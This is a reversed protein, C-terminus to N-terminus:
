AHVCGVAHRKGIVRGKANEVPEGDGCVTCFPPAFPQAPAYTATAPATATRRKEASAGGTTLVEYTRGYTGAVLPRGDRSLGAVVASPESVKERQERLRERDRELKALAKGNHKEWAAWKQDADLFLDRFAAVFQGREGDWTAWREILSAPIQALNGTPAHEPFRCLLLVLLGAAEAVRCGLREALAHVRPDDGIAVSIRIWNM